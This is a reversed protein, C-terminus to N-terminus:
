KVANYKNLFWKEDKPTSVSVHVYRGVDQEQQEWLAVKYM